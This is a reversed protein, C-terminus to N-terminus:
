QFYGNVDLILHAPNSVYAAIAGAVTRMMVANAVIQVGNRQPVPKRRLTELEHAAL